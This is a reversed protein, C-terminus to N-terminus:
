IREHMGQVGPVINFKSKCQACQINVALGGHPGELFTTGHCDPCEGKDLSALPDPAKELAKRARQGRLWSSLRSTFM